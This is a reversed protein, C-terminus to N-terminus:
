PGCLPWDPYVDLARRGGDDTTFVLPRGDTGCDETGLLAIGEVNDDGPYDFIAEADFRREGDVETSSLRV